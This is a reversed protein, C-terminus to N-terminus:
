NGSAAPAAPAVPAAQGPNAPAVPAAQGPNVPVTGANTGQNAPVGAANNLDPNDIPAVPSGQNAPSPEPVTVNTNIPPTVQDKVDQTGTSAPQQEGETGQESDFVLRVDAVKWSIGSRVMDMIYSVHGGEVLTANVRLKSLQMSRDIGVVTVSSTKAIQRDRQKILEPKASSAWYGSLDKGQSRADFFEAAVKEQTPYGYGKFYAFGLGGAIVLLLFLIFLFVKLGTHKHKREAKRQTKSLKVLDSETIDFFGTDEPSPMIAGSQGTPDLPDVIGRILDNTNSLSGTVAGRRNRIVQEANQLDLQAAPTLQYTGDATAQGFSSVAEDMRNIAVYAQGLNAFIVNRQVSPMSFDLATRYAEIADQPRKLEMFCVGLNLLQKTPDPNNPDLAANRYATGAERVDGKKMYAGGLAAFAKYRADYAPDDLARKFSGIAADIMDCALEAKGKNTAVAGHKAYSPDQLAREYMGIAEAYRGLKMLSNGRLHDAEGCPEGEQAVQSFLIAATAYDKAAYAQRAEEFKENNM